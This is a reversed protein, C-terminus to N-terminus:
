YTFHSPNRAISCSCTPACPALCRCVRDGYRECVLQSVTVLNCNKLSNETQPPMEKWGAAFIEVKYFCKIPSEIHVFRAPWVFIDWQLWPPGALRNIQMRWNLVSYINDKLM